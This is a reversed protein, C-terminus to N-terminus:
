LEVEIFDYKRDHERAYWRHIRDVLDLYLVVKPSWRKIHELGLERVINKGLGRKKWFNLSSQVYSYFYEKEFIAMFVKLKWSDKATQKRFGCMHIIMETLVTDKLTANNAIRYAALPFNIFTLSYKKIGKYQIIQDGMLLKEHANYVNELIERPIMLGPSTVSCGFFFEVKSVDFAYIKKDMAPFVFDDRRFPYPQSGIIGKYAYKEIFANVIELYRPHLLDDDNLLVVYQGHALQAARLTNGYIGINKENKYYVVRESNIKGVFELNEKLIEGKADNDSIIIEYDMFNEQNLASYLSQKLFDHRRYTPIMITFKPNVPHKGWILFSSVNDYKHFDGGDKLYDKKVMGDGEM